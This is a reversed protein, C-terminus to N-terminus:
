DGSVQQYLHKPKRLINKAAHHWNNHPLIVTLRPKAYLQRWAGVLRKGSKCKLLAYEGFVILRDPLSTKDCLQAFTFVPLRYSIFHQVYKALKTDPVAVAAFKGAAGSEIYQLLASCCAPKYEDASLVAEHDWDYGACASKMRPPLADHLSGNLMRVAASQKRPDTQQQEFNPSQFEAITIETFAVEPALRTWTDQVSSMESLVLVFREFPPKNFEVVCDTEPMLVHDNELGIVPVFHQGPFMYNTLWYQDTDDFQCNTFHIWLKRKNFRKLKLLWQQSSVCNFDQIFLLDCDVQQPINGAVLERFTYTLVGAARWSPALARKTLVVTKAPWSEVAQRVVLPQQAVFVGGLTYREMESHIHQLRTKKRYSEM